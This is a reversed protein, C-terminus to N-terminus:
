SGFIRLCAYMVPLSFVVGDFRDLFGGHGPLITGSDKTRFARKLFSECLDGVQAVIGVLIPIILVAGWSMERFAILKYLLIVIVGALLGGISGEVTKKPSIAPYLKTKGYKKGAFYAGTDGAWVIFLFVFTWRVGYASDHILILFLPLFALYLVGFIGFMLEQFHTKLADGDQSHREAVFLFYAFLGLFALLLLEYEARPVWFNIFAVLWTVGLLVKRKEKRDSLSFTMEVFEYVMGLALVASVLGVGIRGGFVLLLVLTAVGVVATFVRQQLESELKM